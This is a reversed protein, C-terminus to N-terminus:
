REESKRGERLKVKEKKEKKGRGIKIEGNMKGRIKKRREIEGKGKIREKEGDLKEKGM